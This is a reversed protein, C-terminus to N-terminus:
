PWSTITLTVTRSSLAVVGAASTASLVYTIGHTETSTNTINGVLERATADLTVTGDSTAGTTPVLNITLTMGPPMATNLQGTIKQPQTAKKARATYTTATNTVDNPALGATATTIHLLSPNGSVTVSAPQASAPHPAM